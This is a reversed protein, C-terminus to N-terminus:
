KFLKAFVKDTKFAIVLGTIIMIPGLIIEYNLDLEKLYKHIGFIFIFPGLLFLMVGAIIVIVRAIEKTKTWDVLHKKNGFDVRKIM